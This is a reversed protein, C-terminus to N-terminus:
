GDMGARRRFADVLSDIGVFRPPLGVIRKVRRRVAEDSEVGLLQAVESLNSGQERLAVAHLAFLWRAIWGPPPLRSRKLERAIQRPRSGAIWLHALGAADFAPSPDDDDAGGRAQPLAMKFLGLFREPVEGRLMDLARFARGLAGQRALVSAVAITVDDYTIAGDVRGDVLLRAADTPLDGSPLYALVSGLRGTALTGKLVAPADASAIDVVLITERKRQVEAVAAVGDPVARVRFHGWGLRAAQEAGELIGRIEAPDGLLAIVPTPAPNRNQGVPDNTPPPSPTRCSNRSLSPGAADTPHLPDCM